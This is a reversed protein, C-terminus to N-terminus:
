EEVPENVPRSLKYTVWADLVKPDVDSKDRWRVFSPFRMRGEKTLGDRTLPDPQAKAELIRGIYTEPGELQVQAKEKDSFGSGVRTIIGNSLLVFFGAFLGARKTGEHGLFHGVVVGEYTTMPKLKLVDDTRDWKYTSELRKLMVGEYGQDMCDAFYALLDKENDITTGPVARVPGHRGSTRRMSEIVDHMRDLRQTLSRECAQAKWEDLTLCDFVHLVMNTDDKANKSSMMVSSSENWDAGISEADLVLDDPMFETLFAKIQPLSELVTGNRTYMTVEGGVKVAVCRLGDLKPEVRVPYTVPELPRIGEGAKFESKLTVALQVTFPVIAGPWVKNITGENVGCRLNRLLIRQAWKCELDDMGDLADVVLKKAANGTVKRTSLEDVLDNLFSELIRDSYRGDLVDSTNEVLRKTPKAKTVYFVTYPDYTLAFVRRLLANDANAQLIALKAKSSGQGAPVNEIDELIQVVSKMTEITGYCPM